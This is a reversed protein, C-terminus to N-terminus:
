SGQKKRRLLKFRVGAERAIRVVRLLNRTAVRVREAEAAASEPEAHKVVEERRAYDASLQELEAQKMAFAKRVEADQIDSVEERRVTELDPQKVAMGVRLKRRVDALEDLTLSSRLELEGAECEILADRLEDPADM